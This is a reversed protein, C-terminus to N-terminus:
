GLRQKFFFLFFFIFYFSKRNNKEKKELHLTFFYFMKYDGAQISLGRYFLERWTFFVIVVRDM